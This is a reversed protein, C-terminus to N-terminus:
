INGPLWLALNVYAMWLCAAFPGVVVLAGIGWHTFRGIAWGFAWFTAAAAAWLLAPLRKSSDGAIADESSEEFAPGAVTTTTEVTDAPTSDSTSPATTSAPVGTAVTSAPDPLGEGGLGDQETGPPAQQVTTGAPVPSGQLVATVILRKADSYRPHCTTLTLRNEATPGIVDANRPSVIQAERDMVYTFKGARTTVLIQDGIVLEDLSYFPAGYTTRHGAIAANGPEGPLPTSIYHGPGEKLDAVSVGSVVIKDVGLKPIEIRAVAGGPLVLPPPTTTTPATPDAGDPVTSTPGVLESFEDVLRDQARAEAINTGWLQYGAFGLIVLGAWILAKGTFNAFSQFGTRDPGPKWRFRWIKLPGKPGKAGPIPPAPRPPRGIQIGFSDRQPPRAPQPRGSPSGGPGSV